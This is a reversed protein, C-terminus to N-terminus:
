ASEVEFPGIRYGSSKVVDDSRGVLWLYGDEDMYVVDGWPIM